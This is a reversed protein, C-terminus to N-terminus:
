RQAPVHFLDPGVPNVPRGYGSGPLTDTPTETRRQFHYPGRGTKRQQQRFTDLTLRSRRSGPPM